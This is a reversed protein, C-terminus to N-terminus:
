ECGRGAHTIARPVFEFFGDDRTTHITRLGEMEARTRDQELAVLDRDLQDLNEHSEVLFEAVIEDLDDM